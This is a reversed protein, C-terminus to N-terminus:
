GVENSWTKRIQLESFSGMRGYGGVSSLPWTMSLVIELELTVSSRTSRRRHRTQPAVFEIGRKANTPANNHIACTDLRHLDCRSARVRPVRGDVGSLRSGLEGAENGRRWHAAGFLSRSPSKKKWNTRSFIRLV